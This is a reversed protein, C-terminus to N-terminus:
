GKFLIDYAVKVFLLALVILIATRIIKTGKHIVLGSGIYAGAISFLAASIGLPILVRGNYLFLVLASLNSSLNVVKSNGAAIRPDIKALGCYLLLLFTGAGPGFFGDYGGIIFSIAICYFVTRIRSLSFVPPNFHKKKFVYFATIPLIIVLLYQLYKEDVSLTLSTGLASGVLAAIISPICLALDVCKNKYYRWSAVLVGACASLKNTGLAFHIPVGAFLYAPVAILGGGGAISDLLGALFALPCVILFAIFDPEM